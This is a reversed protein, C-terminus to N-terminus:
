THPVGAFGRALCESLHVMVDGFIPDGTLLLGDHLLEAVIGELPYCALRDAHSQPPSTQTLLGNYQAQIYMGTKLPKEALVGGLVTEFNVNLIIDGMDPDSLLFGDEYVETVLGHLAPRTIPTEAFITLPFFATSVMAIALLLAFYNRRKM